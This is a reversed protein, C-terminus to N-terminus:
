GGYNMRTDHMSLVPTDEDAEFNADVIEGVFLTHSGLEV